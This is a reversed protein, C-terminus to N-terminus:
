CETRQYFSLCKDSQHVTRVRRFGLGSEPLEARRHHEVVVQSEPMSIGVRFLTELLDCYPGWQYPPDLFTIDARFGERALARFSTFADGHLIRYGSTVGCLDANQRILQAGEQSAEIFVAEQAGRSIAELGIAGTGAFVDLVIAGSVRTGLINFLTEKLRDGTPRLAAGRPGKLRRGRFRGSIIRM